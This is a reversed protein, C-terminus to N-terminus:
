RGACGAPRRRECGASAAATSRTSASPRRGHGHEHGAVDRVGAVRALVLARAFQQRRQRHRDVRRGPVMVQEALRQLVHHLRPRRITTHSVDCGPRSSPASSTSHSAACGRSSGSVGVITAMCWGGIRIPRGHSSSIPSGPASRVASASRSRALGCTLRTTAPWTCRADAFREAAARHDGARRRVDRGLEVEGRGLHRQRVLRRRDENVRQQVAALQDGVDLRDSGPACTTATSTSAPRAHRIPPREGDVRLPPRILPLGDVEEVPEM